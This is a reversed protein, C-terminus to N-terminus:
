SATRRAAIMFYWGLWDALPTGDLGATGRAWGPGAKPPYVGATRVRVDHCGLGGLIERYHDPGFSSEHVDHMFDTHRMMRPFERVRYLSLKRPVVDAYFTGGPRLVRVMEAIVPRPDEFHELLGGSLVMAFAGDPFPLQFADGRLVRMPTGLAAATRSALRVAQPSPDLAYADLRTVRQVRALLRASGCGIEIARGQNPLMGALFALKGADIHNELTSAELGPTPASLSAEWSADWEETPPTM